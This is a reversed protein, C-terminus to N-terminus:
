SQSLPPMWGVWCKSPNQPDSNWNEHMHLLRKLWQTINGTRSEDLSNNKNKIYTYVRAPWLFAKSGKSSSNCEIIFHRIHTNSVSGPDESFADFVRLWQAMERAGDRSM